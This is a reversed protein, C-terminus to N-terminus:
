ELPVKVTIEMADATINVNVFEVEGSDPAEEAFAQAMVDNIHAIRPHDIDLGAIDVAIIEANLKGDEAFFTVDASGSVESSESNTYTGYVVILGPQLDISTIDDFLNDDGQDTFSYRFRQNMANESINVTVEMTSPDSLTISSLCASAPLATILLFLVLKTFHVGQRHLFNKSNTM